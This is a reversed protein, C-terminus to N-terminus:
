VALNASAVWSNAPGQHTQGPSSRATLLVAMPSSLCARWRALSSKLKNADAILSKFDDKSGVGRVVVTDKKADFGKSNQIQRALTEAILYETTTGTPTTNTYEAATFAARRGKRSRPRYRTLSEKRWGPACRPTLLAWPANDGKWFSFYL